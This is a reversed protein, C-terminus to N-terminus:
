SSLHHLVQRGVKSGVGPWQSAQDRANPARPSSHLHFFAANGNCTNWTRAPRGGKWPPDVGWAASAQLLVHAPLGWTWRALRCSSWGAESLRTWILSLELLQHELLTGSAQGHILCLHRPTEWCIASLRHQQGSGFYPPWPTDKLQAHKQQSAQRFADLCSGSARSPAFSKRSTSSLLQLARPVQFLKSGRRCLLMREETSQAEFAWAAERMNAESTLRQRLPSAQSNLMASAWRRGAGTQVRRSIHRRWIPRRHCLSPALVLSSLWVAVSIKEYYPHNITENGTQTM